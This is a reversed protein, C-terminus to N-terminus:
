MVIMNSSCVTHSDSRQRSGCNPSRGSLDRMEGQEHVAAGSSTQSDQYFCMASLSPRVPSLHILVDGYGLHLEPPTPAQELNSDCLICGKLRDPVHLGREAAPGGCCAFGGNQLTVQPPVPESTESECSAENSRVGKESSYSCLQLLVLPATTGSRSM